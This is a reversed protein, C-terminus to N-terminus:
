EKIESEFDEMLKVADAYTKQMGREFSEFIFNAMTIFLPNGARDSSQNALGAVLGLSSEANIAQEGPSVLLAFVIRLSHVM